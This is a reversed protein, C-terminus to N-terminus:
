VIRTQSSGASRRRPSTTSPPLPPYVDPHSPVSPTRREWKPPRASRHEAVWHHPASSRPQETNQWSVRLVATSTSRFNDGSVSHCSHRVPASRRVGQRHRLRQAYPAWPRAQEAQTACHCCGRQPKSGSAYSLAVFVRRHRALTPPAIPQCVSSPVFTKHNRSVLFARVLPSHM